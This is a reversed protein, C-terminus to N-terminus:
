LHSLIRTRGSNEGYYQNSTDNGDTLFTNGGPVGRFRGCEKQSLSQKRVRISLRSKLGARPKGCASM